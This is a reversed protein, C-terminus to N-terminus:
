KNTSISDNIQDLLSKIDKLTENLNKSNEADFQNKANLTLLIEDIRIFTTYVFFDIFFAVVFGVVCGSVTFLSAPTDLNYGIVTSLLYGVVAWVAISVIYTLVKVFKTLGIRIEPEM